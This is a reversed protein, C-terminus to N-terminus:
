SELLHVSCVHGHRRKSRPLPSPLDYFIIGQWVFLNPVMFTYVTCINQVQETRARGLFGSSVGTQRTKDRFLFTLSHNLTGRFQRFEIV